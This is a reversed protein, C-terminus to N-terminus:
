SVYDVRYGENVYLYRSYPPSKAINKVTPLDDFFSSLRLVSTVNKGDLSFAGKVYQKQTKQKSMSRTRSQLEVSATSAATRRTSTKATSTANASKKEDNLVKGNRLSRVTM